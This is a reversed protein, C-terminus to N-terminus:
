RDGCAPGDHATWRWSAPRGAVGVLRYLIRTADPLGNGAHEASTPENCGLADNMAVLVRKNGRNNVDYILRRNGRSLDVPRLFAVDTSYEVLGASNRPAHAIDVVGLM